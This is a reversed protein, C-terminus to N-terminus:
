SCPLIPSRHRAGLQSERQSLFVARLPVLVFSPQQMRQKHLADLDESSVAQGVNDAEPSAFSVEGIFDLLM